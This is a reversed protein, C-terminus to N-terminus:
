EQLGCQSKLFNIYDLDKGIIVRAKDAEKMDINGAEANAIVLENTWIGDQAKAILEKIFNEKTREM